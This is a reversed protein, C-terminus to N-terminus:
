RDRSVGDLRVDAVIMRDAERTRGVFDIGLAKRILSRAGDAGVLYRVRGSEEGLRVTVGADDAEFSTLEVGVEVEVGLHALRDRLVRETRNQPIMLLNPYPVAETPAVVRGMRARWVPVRGLHVRIPPYPGGVRSVADVVGLDDFVE